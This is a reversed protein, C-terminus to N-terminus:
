RIGGERGRQRRGEKDGEGKMEESNTERENERKQERDIWRGCEWGGALLGVQWYVRGGMQGKNRDTGGERAVESARERGRM